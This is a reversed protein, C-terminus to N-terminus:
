SPSFDSSSIAQWIKQRLLDLDGLRDSRWLWAAACGLLVALLLLLAWRLKPRTGGLGDDFAILIATTNDAKHGGRRVANAVALDLAQQRRPPPSAALKELDKQQLHEWFGDSCLLIVDGNNVDAHGERPSPPDEGGLSQLLRSQDPHTGMELETIEGREFLVQVVSDDRTREVLKGKHFRLLRCDGAHVWHVARDDCLCAVVVARASRRIRASEENVARHAATMWKTLFVDPNPLDGTSCQAWSKAAAALTARAADAGGGHGGAGDTVVAFVRTGAADFWHGCADEQHERAGQSIATVVAPRNPRTVPSAIHSSQNKM